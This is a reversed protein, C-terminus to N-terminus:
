PQPPPLKMASEIMRIYEAVPKLGMEARRTDVNASDDIPDLVVKGDRMTMQTGYRQKHGAQVEVRDALLAVAQLDLDGNRAAQMVAPLMARMFATDGDAHQVILFASEVNEKGVQAVTPWQWRAVYAKLWNTNASDVQNMRRGQATDVEGGEGFGERISQDEKGRAALQKRAEALVSESAVEPAKGCGGLMVTVALLLTGGLARIVRAPMM